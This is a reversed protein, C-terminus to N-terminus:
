KEIKFLWNGLFKDDGTASSLPVSKKSDLKLVYMNYSTTVGLTTEYVQGTEVNVATIKKAGAMLDFFKEGNYKPLGVFGEALYEERTKGRQKGEQGSGMPNGGISMM